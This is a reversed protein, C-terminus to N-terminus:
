DGTPKAPIPIAERKPTGMRVMHTRKRTDV